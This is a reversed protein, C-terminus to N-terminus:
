CWRMQFHFADNADRVWISQFGNFCWRDGEQIVLNNGGGGLGFHEQCWALVENFVDEPLYIPSDLDFRPIPHTSKTYKVM